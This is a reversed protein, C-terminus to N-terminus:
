IDRSIAAIMWRKGSRFVRRRSEFPFESGDKCRYRSRLNHIAAPDNAILADYSRGLVERNTGIVVDAPGMRLMEKRTYGLRRCITSNVDLYRMTARDILVIMDASNEMATRFRRMDASADRKKAGASRKGAAAM